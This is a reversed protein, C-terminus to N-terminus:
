PTTVMQRACHVVHRFAEMAHGINIEEPHGLSKVGIVAEIQNDEIMRRVEDTAHAAAARVALLQRSLPGGQPNMTTPLAALLAGEPRQQFHESVIDMVETFNLQVEATQFHMDWHDNWWSYPHYKVLWHGEWLCLHKETPCALFSHALEEYCFLGLQWRGILGAIQVLFFLLTPQM